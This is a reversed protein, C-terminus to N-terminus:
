VCSSFAELVAVTVCFVFHNSTLRRGLRANKNEFCSNISARSDLEVGNLTDYIKPANSELTLYVNRHVISVLFGFPRSLGLELKEKQKERVRSHCLITECKKKEVFVCEMNNIQQEKEKMSRRAKESPRKDFTKKNKERRWFWNPRSAIQKCRWDCAVVLLFFGGVRM